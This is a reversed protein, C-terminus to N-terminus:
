YAGNPRLVAWVTRLLITLDQLFSWNDVYYLDLRVADNWSLDSRGSVQWLGTIGPRVDLRRLVHSKYHDVEQELAPRPGVLSMEGKLVNVLQPLEDISYRRIFRGVATVRPDHRLKFLVGNGDHEILTHKLAEADVVMSRFKLCNFVEGTRGVRRQRFIVPGGDELKIALMALLMVPSLLLLAVSAALVDFSRKLGRGAREAQPKAVTMLPVGAITQVDVRNSSIEALSPIVILRAQERELERALENFHNAGRLSGEVFIVADAKTSRVARLADDPTGLVPIGSTPAPEGPHTLAGILDYGIWPERQFVAALHDIGRPHGAIVMPVRMSGRRRAGHLARRMLHRGLVLLPIGILFSLFYFARSLPYNSLYAGIGLLAAAVVTANIVTRYEVTGAGLHKQSYSGLALLSVLWVGIVVAIAPRVLSDVDGRHPFLTLQSRLNLALTTTVAIVAADVAFIAWQLYRLHRADGTWTIRRLEGSPAFTQSRM